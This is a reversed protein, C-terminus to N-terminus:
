KRPKQWAAVQSVKTFRALWSCLLRLDFVRQDFSSLKTRGAETQIKPWNEPRLTHCVNVWITQSITVFDLIISSEHTTFKKKCWMEKVSHLMVHRCITCYLVPGSKPWFICFYRSGYRWVVSCSREEPQSVRENMRRLFFAYLSMMECKSRCGQDKLVVTLQIKPSQIFQNPTASLHHPHIAPRCLGPALHIFAKTPEHSFNHIEALSFMIKLRKFASIKITAALLTKMCGMRLHAPLSLQVNLTYIFDKLLSTSDWPKQISLNRQIFQISGNEINEHTTKKDCKKLSAGMTGLQKPSLQLAINKQSDRYIDPPICLKM